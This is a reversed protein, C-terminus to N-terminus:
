YNDCYLPNNLISEAPQRPSPKGIGHVEGTYLWVARPPTALFIVGASKDHWNDLSQEGKWSFKGRTEQLRDMSISITEESFFKPCVQSKTLIDLGGALSRALQSPRTACTARKRAEVFGAKIKANTLSTITCPLTRHGLPRARSKTRSLNYIPLLETFPHLLVIWITSPPHLVLCWQITQGRHSQPIVLLFVM